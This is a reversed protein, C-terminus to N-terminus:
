QLFNEKVLTTPLDLTVKTSGFTLEGRMPADVTTGSYIRINDLALRYTLGVNRGLDAIRVMLHEIASISSVKEVNLATAAYPAVYSEGNKQTELTLKEGDLYIDYPIRLYKGDAQTYADKFNVVVAINHWTNLSLKGDKISSEYVNEDSFQLYGESNITLFFLYDTQNNVPLCLLTSPKSGEPFAEYMIDFQIVVSDENKILNNKDNIFLISNDKGEPMAVITNNSGPTTYYTLGKLPTLTFNESYSSLGDYSVENVVWNLLDKSSPKNKIYNTGCESCDYMVYKGTSDTKETFDHEAVPLEEIMEEEGCLTCAHYVEGPVLCTSAETIPDGWEHDLKDGKREVEENCITCVGKEIVPTRCTAARDVEWTEVVHECAEQSTTKKTTKKTTTDGGDCAVCAIVIAVILLLAVMLKSFRM